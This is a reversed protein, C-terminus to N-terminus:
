CEPPEWSRDMSRCLRLVEAFEEDSVEPALVPIDAYTKDSPLPERRKARSYHPPDRYRWPNMEFFFPDDTM